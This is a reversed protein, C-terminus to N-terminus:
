GRGEAESDDACLRRAPVARTNWACAAAYMAEDRLGHDPGPRYQIDQGAGRCDTCACYVRRRGLVWDVDNLAAQAGCFPCPLLEPLAPQACERPLGRTNM